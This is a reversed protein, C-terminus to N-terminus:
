VSMIIFSTFALCCISKKDGEIRSYFSLSKKFTIMIKKTKKERQKLDMLGMM